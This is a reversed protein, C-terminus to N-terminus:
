LHPFTQIGKEPLLKALLGTLGEGTNGGTVLLVDPVIKSNGRWYRSLDAERNKNGM